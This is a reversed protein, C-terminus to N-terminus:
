WTELAKLYIFKALSDGNMVNWSLVYITPFTFLLSLTM